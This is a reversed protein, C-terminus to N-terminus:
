WVGGTRRNGLGGQPTLPEGRAIVRAKLDMVLDEIDKMGQVPDVKEYRELLSVSSGRGRNTGCKMVVEGRFGQDGRGV